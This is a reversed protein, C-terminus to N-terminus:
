IFLFATFRGKTTTNAKCALNPNLSAKKVKPPSGSRVGSYLM